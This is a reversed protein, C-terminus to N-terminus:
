QTEPKAVRGMFLISGTRNERILFLFPRDARFVIPTPPASEKAGGNHALIGLRHVACNHYREVDFWYVQMREEHSSLSTIVQDEGSISQLVDGEKLDRAEVWRGYGNTKEEKSVERPVPRNSLREGSLVYFPQNGTAQISDHDIHITIMDGKYQFSQRKLIRSLTWAGTVLDYAYVKTGSDVTEIPRLGRDTLVETGGPFCGVATVAAAETGEENVDVFAKHVVFEIVLWNANGDMGSFDGKGFVDTMGMAYLMDTLNIASVITFKPFYLEVPTEYLNTSWQKLADVTLSEELNQIGDMEKPLVILMSLQTGVYPMEVVQLFDDEGYNLNNTQQMMSVGITENKQLYFPMEKTASEEFQSAWEGKFYIANVLVLTTLPPLPEPFFNQIKNDTKEEVWSNIKLTANKRDTKYDVPKIEAQYFDKVIKLYRELFPFTEQPWLSNAINLQINGEQQMANLKTQLEAFASHLDEDELTFRLVAAMQKATEGRAGGYTMALASSISYPSFFINGEETKIMEYIDIAFQTNSQVLRELDSYDQSFVRPSFVTLSILVCFVFPTIFRKM